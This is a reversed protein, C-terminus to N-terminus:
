EETCCQMFNLTKEKKEWNVMTALKKPNKQCKAGECNWIQATVYKFVGFLENNVIMCVFMFESSYKREDYNRMETRDIPLRQM